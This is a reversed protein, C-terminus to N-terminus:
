VKLTLSNPCNIVAHFLLEFNKEEKIMSEYRQM